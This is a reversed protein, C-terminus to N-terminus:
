RNLIRKLVDFESELGVSKMLLIKAAGHAHIIGFVDYPLDYGAYDRAAGAALYAFVLCVLFGRM